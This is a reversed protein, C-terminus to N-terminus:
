APGFVISETAVVSMDPQAVLCVGIQRPYLVPYARLAQDHGTLVPEHMSTNPLSFVGGRM